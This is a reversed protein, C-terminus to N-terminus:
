KVMMTSVTVTVEMAVAVMLTHGGEGDDVESVMMTVHGPGHQMWAM